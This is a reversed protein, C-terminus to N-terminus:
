YRDFKATHKVRESRGFMSTETHTVTVTYSPFEDPTIVYHKRGNVLYGEASLFRRSDLIASINRKDTATLHGETVSIPKNKTITSM